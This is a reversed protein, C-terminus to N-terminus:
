VAQRTNNAAPPHPKIAPGLDRLPGRPQPGVIERQQSLGAAVHLRDLQDSGKIASSLQLRNSFVQAGIGQTTAGHEVIQDTDLAHGSRCQTRQTQWACRIFLYVRKTIQQPSIM